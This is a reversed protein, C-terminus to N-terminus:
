NSFPPHVLPAPPLFLSSHFYHFYLVTYSIRLVYFSFLLKTLTKDETFTIQIGMYGCARGPIINFSKEPLVSSLPFLKRSSKSQMSIECMSFLHHKLLPLINSVKVRRLFLKPSQDCTQAALPLLALAPLLQRGLFDDWSDAM